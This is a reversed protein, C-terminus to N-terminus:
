IITVSKNLTIKGQTVKEADGSPAAPAIVFLDYNGVTWLMEKTVEDPIHLHIGGDLPTITIDGYSTYPLTSTLEFFLESTNDNGARAQLFASYGTLPVPTGDTNKYYISARFTAGQNIELDINAM